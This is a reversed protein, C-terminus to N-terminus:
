RQRRIITCLGHCLYLYFLSPHLTPITLIIAFLGAKAMMEVTSSVFRMGKM